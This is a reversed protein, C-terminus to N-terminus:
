GQLQTMWCSDGKENCLAKSDGGNRIHRLAIGREGCWWGGSARVMVWGEEDM